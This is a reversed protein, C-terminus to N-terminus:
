LKIFYLRQQVNTHVFSIRDSCKRHIVPWTNQRVSHVSAPLLSSIKCLQRGRVEYKKAKRLGYSKVDAQHHVDKQLTEYTTLVVDAAAFDRASLVKGKSTGLNLEDTGSVSDYVLM